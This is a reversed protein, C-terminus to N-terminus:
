NGLGYSRRFFAAGLSIPQESLLCGCSGNHAVSFCAASFIGRSKHFVWMVGHSSFSLVTSQGSGPLLSCADPLFVGSNQGPPTYEKSFSIIAGFCRAVLLSEKLCDVSCKILERNALLMVVSFFSVARDKFLIDTIKYM